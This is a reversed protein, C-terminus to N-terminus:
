EISLDGLIRTTVELLCEIYNNFIISVNWNNPVVSYNLHVRCIIVSIQYENIIFKNNKNETFLIHRFVIM